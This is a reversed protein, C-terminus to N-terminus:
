PKGGMRPGLGRHAVNGKLYAFFKNAYWNIFNTQKICSNLEISYKEHNLEKFFHYSRQYNNSANSRNNLKVFVDGLSKLVWAQKIQFDGEKSEGLLEYSKKYTKIARQPEISSQIDGLSKLTDGQGHLYKIRKFLRLAKLYSFKARRKDGLFAYADGISKIIWGKDTPYKGLDEVISLAYKYDILSKRKDHDPRVNGIKQYIEAALFITTSGLHLRANEYSRLAEEKKGALCQADGMSMLTSTLDLSNWSNAFIKRAEEYNEIAKEFNGMASESDGKAKIVGAKFLNNKNESFSNYALNYNELAKKYDKCHQYADGISKAIAGIAFVDNEKEHFKRAKEYYEFSKEHQGVFQCFDGILKLTVSVGFEDNVEKFRELAKNYLKIIEDNNFHQSEKYLDAISKLSNGQGIKDAIDTDAYIDLAAKYNKIAEPFELESKKSDGLSKLLHARKSAEVNHDVAIKYAKSIWESLRPEACHILWFNNLNLTIDVALEKQVLDNKFILIQTKLINDKEQSLVNILKSSILRNYYHKNNWDPDVTTFIELGFYKIFRSLISYLTNEKKSCSEAFVKLLPQEIFYRGNNAKIFSYDILTGIHTIFNNSVIDSKLISIISNKDLGNDACIGLLHFIEKESETLKQYSLSFAEAVSLQKTKTILKLLDFPVESNELENLSDRLNWKLKRINRGMIEIALPFFGLRQVIKLADEKQDSLDQESYNELLKIAKDEILVDPLEYETSKASSGLDILETIIAVSPSSLFIENLKELYRDNANEINDFCFLVKKNDFKLKVINCLQEFGQEGRDRLANLRKEIDDKNQSEAFIYELFRTIERSIDKSRFDIYYLYEFEEQVRDCSMLEKLLESKGAGTIAKVIIVNVFNSKARKIFEIIDSLEDRQVFNRNRQIQFPYNKKPNSIKKLFQNLLENLDLKIFNNLGM